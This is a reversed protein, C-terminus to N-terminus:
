VVEPRAASLDSREAPDTRPSHLEARASGDADRAGPAEVYKWEANALGVLESWGFHLRPFCTELYLERPALEEGHLLPVLSRGAHSGFVGGDEIGALEVLTAAVDALSVPAAVVRPAVGPGALVLPVRVTADYLLLAHTDEGHEGLGEGHDATVCVFTDETRGLTALAALLEALASDAFAVEAQYADGPFRQAFEAPAQYPEHADFLHVWLFFPEDPALASLWARTARVTEDGRRQRM